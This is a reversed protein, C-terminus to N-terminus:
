DVIFQGYMGESAHGPYQCIYNFTGPQNATFTTTAVPYANKSAAPIPHVFAGPYIGGQMMSMTGYPPQASTVEIGHPMDTDENVLEFTVHAGRQVHLTPNVLGGIVFKEAPGSTSDGMAGGFVVIKVTKGSYTISNNAKNVTANQLSSQMEQNANSPQITKVSGFFQGMASGMASAWNSDNTGNEGFAQGMMGYWGNQSASSSANSSKSTTAASAAQPNNQAFVQSVTLGGVGLGILLTPILITRRRM